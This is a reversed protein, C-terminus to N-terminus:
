KQIVRPLYYKYLATLKSLKAEITGFACKFGAKKAECRIRYSISSHKGYPYALYDVDKNLLTELYRKSERLEEYSNKVTKLRPHSVTHAGITCLPDKSIDKLQEESIYGKKHTFEKTIFLTYPINLERLIPIANTIVNDPVDDFTVTVYKFDPQVKLFSEVSKIDVFRYEEEKLRLLGHKFEHIGCICSPDIDILEDTVHHYMLVLGHKKVDYFLSLNWFWKDFIDLLRAISVKKM